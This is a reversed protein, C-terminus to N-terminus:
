DNLEQDITVTEVTDNFTVTITMSGVNDVDFKVTYCTKAELNAYEKSFSSTVGGQNTLSGTVTFKFADIFAAKTEGKIFPIETANGTKVTFSYDTFYNNFNETCEIKVITNALSVPINVSTNQGGNVTFGVSGTFYPKDFGEAGEAGYVADVTYSGAALPTTADWESLLGTWVTASADDKITLTFNAAAPLSTYDSVKGKTVVDVSEDNSIAFVIGGDASQNLKNCAMAAIAALAFFAIRLHKKM